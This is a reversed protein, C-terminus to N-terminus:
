ALQRSALLFSQITSCSHIYLCLEPHPIFSLPRASLPYRTATDFNLQNFNFDRVKAQRLSSLVSQAVIMRACSWYVAFSAPGSTPFVTSPLHSGPSQVMGDSTRFNAKNRLVERGNARGLSVHHGVVKRVFNTSM